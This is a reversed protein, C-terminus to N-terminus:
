TNYTLFFVIIVMVLIVLLTAVYLSDSVMEVKCYIPQNNNNQTHHNKNDEYDDQVEQHTEMLIEGYNEPRTSKLQRTITKM